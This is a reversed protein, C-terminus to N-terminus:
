LFRENATQSTRGWCVALLRQWFLSTGLAPGECGLYVCGAREKGSGQRGGSGKRKNEQLKWVVETMVM